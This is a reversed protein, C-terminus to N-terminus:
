KWLYDLVNESDRSTRPMQKWIMELAKPIMEVLRINLTSAQAWTLAAPFSEFNIIPPPAYYESHLLWNRTLMKNKQQCILFWRPERIGKFLESGALVLCLHPSEALM